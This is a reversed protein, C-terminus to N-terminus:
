IVIPKESDTFNQPAIPGYPATIWLNGHYDFTLDNLGQLPENQNDKTAVQEFSGNQKVKLLGLRMDTVWINNGPGNQLGLPMGNFGDVSLNVFPITQKNELDVRRIEGATYLVIYLNGDKAFLPGELPEKEKLIKLLRTKNSALDCTKGVRCQQICGSLDNAANPGNISVSCNKWCPFAISDGTAIRCIRFCKRLGLTRCKVKCPGYKPPFGLVFGLVTTATLVAVLKNRINM